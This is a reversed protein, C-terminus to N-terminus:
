SWGQLIVTATSDASGAITRVWRVGPDITVLGQSAMLTLLSWTNEQLTGISLGNDLTGQITLPSSATTNTKWSLAISAMDVVLVPNSTYTSSVTSDHMVQWREYGRAM